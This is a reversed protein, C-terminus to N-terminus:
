SKRMRARIPENDAYVRWEAVLGEEIRARIAIPTQWRNEQSPGSPGCYTGQAIGLMVVVSGDAYTEEIALSYDPVMGFYGAWGGRMRDWGEVTNGLSDTFRHDATMLAALADVNQRNIARVFEMAVSIAPDSM